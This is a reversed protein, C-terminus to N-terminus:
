EAFNRSTAADHRVLTTDGPTPRPTVGLYRLTQEVIRAAAPAAVIGGYYGKSKNTIHVVVAVVIQPDEYPAGCVFAGVYQGDLYGRHNKDPVQATGTKGFISYAPIEAKRGTGETIVRRLVDRTCAAVAPTLVRERVALQDRVDNPDRAVITPHVLLGGNAFACFGRALQIPTVAIEQGMPVSTITYLSWKKRPTVLGPNEGPLGAGTIRGFGFARVARYMPDIGMRQGVIAMGINSSKVLVGEWTQLGNAHADRLRRGFSTAYVGSTTCDINEEPRAAGAQTATSWIFPKFTSGPEFADTVCRNRRRQDEPTMKAIADPSFSPYSAMALVEGTHPQMVIVQGEPSLFERCADAIAEEALSQIVIDISLRVPQGDIPPQYGSHDVWLPRASADRWYRLSGPKGCLKKEFALEAGEMGQGEAGIFGIISGATTGLPYRRVLADETSLGPLKLSALKVQRQADLQKDIVIYRSGPRQALQQEVWAPDYGLRYGVQESFTNFDEILLSDVFLRPLVETAAIIRGHRDTLNGRRGLLPERSRQSDVLEGVLMPPRCQLQAVRGLVGILAVSIGAAVLAGVTVPRRSLSVGEDKPAKRHVPIDKRTAM